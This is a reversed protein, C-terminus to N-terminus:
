RDLKCQDYLFNGGTASAMTVTLKVTKRDLVYMWGNKAARSAITSDTVVAPNADVTRRDYDIRIQWTAGSYPNTCTVAVEGRAPAAQAITGAGPAAIAVAMAGVTAVLWFALRGACSAQRAKGGLEYAIASNKM